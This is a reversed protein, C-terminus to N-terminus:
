PHPSISRGSRADLSPKRLGRAARARFIMLSWGEMRGWKRKFPPRTSGRIRADFPCRGLTRAREALLLVVLSGEWGRKCNERGGRVSIEQRDLRTEGAHNMLVEAAIASGSNRCAKPRRARGEPRRRVARTRRLDEPSRVGTERRPEAIEDRSQARSGSCTSPRRVTM